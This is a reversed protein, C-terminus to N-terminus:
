IQPRRAAASYSPPLWSGWAGTARTYSLFSPGPSPVAASGCRRGRGARGTPAGSTGAPGEAPPHQPVHAMPCCCAEAARCVVPQRWGVGAGGPPEASSQRGGRRLRVARTDVANKPPSSTPVVWCRFCSKLKASALSGAAATPASLGTSGM